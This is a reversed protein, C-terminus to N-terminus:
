PNLDQSSLDHLLSKGVIQGQTMKTDPGSVAKVMCKLFYYGDV